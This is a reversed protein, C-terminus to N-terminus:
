AFDVVSAFKEGLFSRFGAKRFHSNRVCCEDYLKASGILPFILTM